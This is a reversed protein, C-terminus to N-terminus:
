YGTAYQFHMPDNSLQHFGHKAFVAALRQQGATQRSQGYPNESANIDVAIGWSHVSKSSGGTKARNCYCGDFSHIDNSLGQAKIDEFVAKLQNAIKANCTVSVDRGGPGAPMTVTVQNTGPQGFMSEIGSLGNPAGGVASDTGAPVTSGSNAAGSTPISSNGNVTVYNSHCYATQGNWNIKYWVGEKAIIQVQDGNHFKGIIKGWPGTRINLSTNVHVTGVGGSGGSQSGAPASQSSNANASSTNGAGTLSLDAAAVQNSSGSDGPISLEWGPYLLLPNKELTPYKSKNLAILETYRSADGLYTQAIKQLTDGSVVVYKQPLVNALTAPDVNSSASLPATASGGPATGPDHENLTTQPAAAASIEDGNAFSVCLLFSMAFIIFQLRGVFIKTNKM